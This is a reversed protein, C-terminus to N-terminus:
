RLRGDFVSSVWQEMAAHDSNTLDFNHGARAQEEYRIGRAEVPRDLDGRAAAWERALPAGQTAAVVLGDQAGYALYAPPAGARLYTSVSAAAIQAPDCAIAGTPGCDLLAATLGPAWDGADPFTRLDSPGVYDIVGQVVPSVRTLESPLTPDRFEGPAVGALAALHGGASAGAVIIREPDLGWQQAHARVFRVARDMDYSATPFANLFGGHGDDSVLRYDISVVAVHLDAVLTTIVDPIAARTGGVWGGAHAFLVIPLPGAIGAPVHVDLVQEPQPGYSIGVLERPQVLARHPSPSAAGAPRALLFVLLAGVLLSTRSKSM